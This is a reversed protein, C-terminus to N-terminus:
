RKIKPYLCLENQVEEEGVPKLYWEVCFWIQKSSGYLGCEKDDPDFDWEVIRKNIYCFYKGKIKPLDNITKIDIREFLPKM